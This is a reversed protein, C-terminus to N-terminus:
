HFLNLLIEYVYRMVNCGSKFLYLLFDPDAFTDYPFNDPDVDVQNKKKMKYMSRLQVKNFEYARHLQKLRERKSQFQMRRVHKSHNSILSNRIRNPASFQSYLQHALVVRISNTVKLSHLFYNM